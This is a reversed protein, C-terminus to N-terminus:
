RVEDYIARSNYVPPRSEKESAAWERYLVDDLACTAKEEDKERNTFRKLGEELAHKILAEKQAQARRMYPLKAVVYNYLRSVPSSAAGELGATLTLISKQAAPIPATEFQVPGDPTEPPSVLGSGASNLHRYRTHIVSEEAECPFVIMWMADLTAVAFDDALPFPNSGALGAKVAWLDILSCM